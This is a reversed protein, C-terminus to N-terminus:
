SSERSYSIAVWELISAQFIGKVSSSPPSCNMPNCLAPSLQAYADIFICTYEIYIHTYVYIHIIVTFHFIVHFSYYYHLLM